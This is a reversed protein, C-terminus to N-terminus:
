IKLSNTWGRVRMNGVEYLMTLISRFVRGACLEGRALSLCEALEDIVDGIRLRCVVVVVMRCWRFSFGHKDESKPGEGAGVVVVAEACISSLPILLHTHTM